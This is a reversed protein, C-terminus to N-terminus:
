DAAAHLAACRPPTISDSGCCTIDRLFAATEWSCCRLHFASSFVCPMVHAAVCSPRLRTSCMRDKGTRGCENVTAMKNAEVSLRTFRQQIGGCPNQSSASFCVHRAAIVQFASPWPSGNHAKHEYNHTSFQATTLM